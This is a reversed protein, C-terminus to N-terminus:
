SIALPIGLTALLGLFGGKQNGSGVFGQGVLVNKISKKQAPSLKEVLTALEVAEPPIGSGFIKKLAKEAGFSLGALGLAKAATPLAAKALTPILSFLSGGTQSIIVIKSIHKKMEEQLKESNIYSIFFNDLKDWTFRKGVENKKLKEVFFDALEKAKKRVAKPNKSDVLNIKARSSFDDIFKSYKKSNEKSLGPFLDDDSESEFSISPKKERM